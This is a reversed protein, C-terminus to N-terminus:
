EIKTYLSHCLYITILKKQKIISRIIITTKVNVNGPTKGIETNKCYASQMSQINKDGKKYRFYNRTCMLKSFDFIKYINIKCNYM